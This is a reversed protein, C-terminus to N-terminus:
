NRDSAASRQKVQGSKDRPALRRAQSPTTDVLNISRITVPSIPRDRRDTAVSSLERLTRASESDGAQGLVTYEGDLGELRDLAIFFQCSASHPDSPKRAMLVTGLRVPIPHLEAMVTKGDPRMGTGDGKPCGGQIVFGPVIRHLIKGDYFGEDVLELFNLVNGPAREYDLVITIKGYDTVIIADKRALVRFTAAAAAVRDGLPRWEVRYDGV